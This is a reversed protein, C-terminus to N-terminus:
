ASILGLVDLSPKMIRMKRRAALRLRLRLRVRVRVRVRVPVRVCPRVGSPTTFRHQARWRQLDRAGGFVDVSDGSACPFPM